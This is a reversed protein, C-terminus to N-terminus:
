TSTFRGKEPGHNPGNTSWDWGGFHTDRYDAYARQIEDLSNMVFPGHQVVPEGIPRAQLLLIETEETGNALEVPVTCDIEISSGVDVREGDIALTSGSFFILQRRTDSRSAPPLQWRAGPTMKLTWIALDADPDTAWSRPPPSPPAEMGVGDLAGAIRTVETRGSSDRVVDRPIDAAWFMTFSPDVMKDRAPLNLWVQFVELTNPKDSNLLPFMESHVIGRGATLWQVDGAGFRASEGLSDSHDIIGQRIITITEFGRHPHAPFGPVTDGFYMSWNQGTAAPDPPPVSPGLNTNGAPYHEVHYACVLFPDITEWPTGPRTVKIISSRTM